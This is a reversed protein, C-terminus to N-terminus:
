GVDLTQDDGYIQESICHCHGGGEPVVEASLVCVHHFVQEWIRRHCCLTSM